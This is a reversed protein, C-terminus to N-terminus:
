DCYGVLRQSLYSDRLRRMAKQEIRRIRERTVKWRHAIEMLTDGHMRSKMVDRSRESFERSAFLRKVEQALDKRAVPEWLEEEHRPAPWGNRDVDLNYRQQRSKAYERGLTYRVYNCVITSLTCNLDVPPPSQLLHLCVAQVADGVSGFMRLALRLIQPHTGIRWRIIRIVDENLTVAIQAPTLQEPKRKPKRKLKSRERVMLQSTM